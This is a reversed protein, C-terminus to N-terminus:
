AAHNHAVDPRLNRLARRRDGGIRRGVLRGLL